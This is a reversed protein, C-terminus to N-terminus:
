LCVDYGIETYRKTQMVVFHTNKYQICMIKFKCLHYQGTIRNRM